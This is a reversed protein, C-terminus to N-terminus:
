FRFFKKLSSWSFRIKNGNTKEKLTRLFLYLMVIIGGLFAILLSLLFVRDIM